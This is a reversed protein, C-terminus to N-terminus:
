VCRGSLRWTTGLGARAAGSRRNATALLRGHGLCPQRSSNAAAPLVLQRLCPHGRHCNCRGGASSLLGAASVLCLLM